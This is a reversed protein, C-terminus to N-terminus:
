SRALVMAIIGAGVGLMWLVDFVKGRVRLLGIERTPISLRMLAGVIMGAGILGSGAQWLGMATVVVGIAMIALVIALWTWRLGPDQRTRERGTFPVGAPPVTGPAPPDPIIPVQPGVPGEVPSPEGGDGAAAEGPLDEGSRNM